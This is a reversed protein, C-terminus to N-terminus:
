VDKDALPAYVDKAVVVLRHDPMSNIASRRVRGDIDEWVGEPLEPYDEWGILGHELALVISRAVVDEILIRKADLQDMMAEAM